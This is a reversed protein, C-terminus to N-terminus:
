DSNVPLRCRVAVGEVYDPNISISGGHLAMVRRCLALGIGQGPQADDVQVGEDFVWELSSQPIRPGPTRCEFVWDNGDRWAELAVLADPQGYKEANELLNGLLLLFLQKDLDVSDASPHVSVTVRGALAGPGRRLAEEVLDAVREPERQLSDADTYHGMSLRQSVLWTDFLWALKSVSRDIVDLRRERQASDDNVARTLLRAQNRIVGLPNRVDHALFRQFRYFDDFLRAKEDAALSLESQQHAVEGSLAAERMELLAIREARDLWLQRASAFALLVVDVGAGVQLASRTLPTSAIWGFDALGTVLTGIVMSGCAALFLPMEPIRERALSLVIGAVLLAAAMMLLSVGTDAIPALSEVMAFGLLLVLLVLVTALAKDAWPLRQKLSLFSRIFGFFGIGALLTAFEPVRENFGPSDPWLVAFGVGTKGLLRLVVALSFLAFFGYASQRLALAFLLSMLSVTGLAGFYVSQVISDRGSRALYDGPSELAVPLSLLGRAKVRFWVGDALAARDVDFAYFRDFAPRDAVRTRSTVM